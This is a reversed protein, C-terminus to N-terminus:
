NGYQKIRNKSEAEQINNKIWADVANQKKHSIIATLVSERCEEASIPTPELIEGALLIHWGWRSEVLVPTNAPQANDGFLKLEQLAPEPYVSIMGLDGGREASHLDESHQKALEAFKQQLADAETVTNLEALVSEARAKVEAPDKHLTEFFIHRVHRRTPKVLYYELQSIMSNVEGDTVEYHKALTSELYYLERMIAALRNTFEARSYGQTNLWQEFHEPKFARAALRATEEEAEKLFDPMRTDNYRTRMRLLSNRIIDASAAQKHADAPTEGRLTALEAARRDLQGQTYKDGYVDLVVPTDNVQRADKAKHLMHWLPGQLAFFDLAIYVLGGTYLALKLTFIKFSSLKVGVMRGKKM